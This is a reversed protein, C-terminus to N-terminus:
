LDESKSTKESATRVRGLFVMGEKVENSRFKNREILDTIGEEGEGIGEREGETMGEGDIDEGINKKGAKRGKKM